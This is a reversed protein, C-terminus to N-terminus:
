LADGDASRDTAVHRLANVRGVVSRIKIGDAAGGIEGGDGGGAEGGAVCGSHERAGNQAGRRGDKLM